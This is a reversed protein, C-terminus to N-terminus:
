GKNILLSMNRTESNYNQSLTGNVCSFSSIIIEEPVSVTKTDHTMIGEEMFGFKPAVLHTGLAKAIKQLFSLSPLASGREIRAIAPQSTGIKKALASQTLGAHLRAETILNAVDIAFNNEKDFYVKAFGKDKKLKKNLFDQFKM